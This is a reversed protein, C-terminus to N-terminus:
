RAHAQAEAGWGILKMKAVEAEDQHLKGGVEEEVPVFPWAGVAVVEEEARLVQDPEVGEAAEKVRLM